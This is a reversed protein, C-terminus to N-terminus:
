VELSGEYIVPNNYDTPTFTSKRMRQTYNYSAYRASPKGGDDPALKVTIMAATQSQIQIWINRGWFSSQDFNHCLIWAGTGALDQILAHKKEANWDRYGPVSDRERGVTLYSKARPFVDAKLLRDWNMNVILKVAELSQELAPLDAHTLTRTTGWTSYENVLEGTSENISLECSWGAINKNVPNAEIKCLLYQPGTGREDARWDQRVNIRFKLETFQALEERVASEVKDYIQQRDRNLLAIQEEYKQRYANRAAEYEGEEQRIRDFNSGATIKTLKM